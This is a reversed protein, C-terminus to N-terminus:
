EKATTSDSGIAISRLEEQLANREASEIQAKLIENNMDDTQTRIEQSYEAMDHFDRRRTIPLQKGNDRGNPFDYVEALQGPSPDSIRGLQKIAESVPCFCSDDVIFEGPEVCKVSDEYLKNIIHSFVSSCRFFTKERVDQCEINNENFM